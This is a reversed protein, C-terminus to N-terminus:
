LAAAIVDPQPIFVSTWLTRALLRLTISADVRYLTLMSLWLDFALALHFQSALFLEPRLYSFYLSSKFHFVKCCYVKINYYSAVTLSYKVLPRIPAPLLMDTNGVLEFLFM